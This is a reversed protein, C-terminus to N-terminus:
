TELLDWYIAHTLFYPVGFFSRDTLVLGRGVNTQGMANNLLAQFAEVGKAAREAWSVTPGNQFFVAGTGGTKSPPKAVRLRACMVAPGEIGRLQEEM